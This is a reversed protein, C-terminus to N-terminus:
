LDDVGNEALYELAKDLSSLGIVQETTFMVDFVSELEAVLAMHGISDWQPIERYQLTTVDVTDGLELAKHFAAIVVDRNAL